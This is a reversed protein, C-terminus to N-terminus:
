APMRTISYNFQDSVFEGVGSGEVTVTGNLDGGLGPIPVTGIDTDSWGTPLPGLITLSTSTSITFGTSAGTGTVTISYVGPAVNGNSSLTLTSTGVNTISAPSFSASLGSPLGSVSLAVTDSFGLTPAVIVSIPPPVGAAGICLATPLSFLGFGAGSSTVTVNGFIATSLKNPDGSSVALGATVNSEM